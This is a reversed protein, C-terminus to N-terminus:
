KKGREKRKKQQAIRAKEMRAALKKCNCRHSDCKPKKAEAVDKDLEDLDVVIRGYLKFFINSKQGERVWNYVTGRKIPVIGGQIAEALNMLRSM